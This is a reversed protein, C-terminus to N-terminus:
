EPKLIQKYKKHINYISYFKAQSSMTIEGKKETGKKGMVPKASSM